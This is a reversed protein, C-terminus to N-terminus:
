RLFLADRTKTYASPITSNTLRSSRNRLAWTFSHSHSLQAKPCGRNMESHNLVLRQDVTGRKGHDFGGDLEATYTHLSPVKRQLSEAFHEKINLLCSLLAFEAWASTWPRIKQLGPTRQSCLLSLFTVLHCTQWVAPRFSINSIFSSFDTSCM